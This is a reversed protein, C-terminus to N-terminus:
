IIYDECKNNHLAVVPTNLRVTQAALNIDSWLGQQDLLISLCASTLHCTSKNVACLLVRKWKVGPLLFGFARQKSVLLWLLCVNAITPVYDADAEWGAHQEKNLEEEAHSCIADGIGDEGCGKQQGRM